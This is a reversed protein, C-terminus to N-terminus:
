INKTSRHKDSYCKSLIVFVLTQLLLSSKQADLIKNNINNYPKYIAPMIAKELIIM